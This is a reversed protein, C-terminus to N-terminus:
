PCCRTNLCFCAVRSILLTVLAAWGLSLKRGTSHPAAPCSRWAPLTGRCQMQAPTSGHLVEPACSTQRRCGARHWTLHPRGIDFCGATLMMGSVAVLLSTGVQSMQDATRWRRPCTAQMSERICSNHMCADAPVHIIREVGAILQAAPLTRDAVELRSGLHVALEAKPLHLGCGTRCSPKM